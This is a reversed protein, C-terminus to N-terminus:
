LKAFTSNKTDDKMLNNISIGSQIETWTYVWRKVFLYIFLSVNSTNNIKANKGLSSM